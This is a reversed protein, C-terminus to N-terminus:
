SNEEREEPRGTCVLRSARTLNVGILKTGRLSANTLCAFMLNAGSLVAGSLNVDRLDPVADRNKSRWVRIAETGLRAINVHEPNATRDNEDSSESKVGLSIM